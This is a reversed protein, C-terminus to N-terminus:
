RDNNERRHRDITSRSVEFMSALFDISGPTRPYEKIYEIQEQTLKANPNNVGNHKGSKSEKQKAISEPTHKRGLFPRSKGNGKLVEIRKNRQEPTENALRLYASAKMKLRTEDSIPTMSYGGASGMAVNLGGETVHTKLNHIWYDERAPLDSENECEELIEMEITEIGRARMWKHVPM